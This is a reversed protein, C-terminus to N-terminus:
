DENDAVLELEEELFERHETDEAHSSPKRKTWMGSTKKLPHTFSLTEGKTPLTKEPLLLQKYVRSILFRVPRGVWGKCNPYIKTSLLKDYVLEEM